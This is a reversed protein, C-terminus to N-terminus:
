LGYASQGRPRMYHDGIRKKADIGLHINMYLRQNKIPTGGGRVIDGRMRPTHGDPVQVAMIDNDDIQMSIDQADRGTLRLRKKTAKLAGLDNRQRGRSKKQKKTSM